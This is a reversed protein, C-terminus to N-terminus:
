NTFRIKITINRNSLRNKIENRNGNDLRFIDQRLSVDVKYFM